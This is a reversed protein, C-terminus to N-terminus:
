RCWVTGYLWPAYGIGHQVAHGVEHAAIGLAAVSASDYVGAPCCKPGPITIIRSFERLGEVRVDELGADRLLAAAVIYAPQGARAYVRLAEYASRAQGPGVPCIHLRCCSFVYGLDM